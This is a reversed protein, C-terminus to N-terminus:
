PGKEAIRQVDFGEAILAKVRASTHRRLWKHGEDAFDWLEMGAKGDVVRMGRGLRQLTAIASKGGAAVVCARVEPIDIGVDFITSCVLVQLDGRRLRQIAERRGETSDHGWVFDVALGAKELAKTLIRGHEIEKVFVLAPRAARLVVRVVAANRPASEVVGARYVEHWTGTVEPQHVRVMRITPKALFGREILLESKVEHLISGLAALVLVDRRDGRALPTGSIGWRFRASKARMAVRWFSGAPLVHCNHVVCGDAVFTETDEVSM